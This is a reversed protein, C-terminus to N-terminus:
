SLILNYFIKPVFVDTGEEPHFHLQAIAQRGQPHTCSLMNLAQERSTLLGNKKAIKGTVSFAM